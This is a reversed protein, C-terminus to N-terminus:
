FKQEWSDKLRFASLSNHSFSKPLSFYLQSLAPSGHMSTLIHSGVWVLAPNTDWTCLPSPLPLSLPVLTEGWVHQTASSLSAPMKLLTSPYINM